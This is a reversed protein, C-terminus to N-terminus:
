LVLKLIMYHVIYHVDNLLKKLELIVLDSTMMQLLLSLELLGDLHVNCISVSFVSKFYDM